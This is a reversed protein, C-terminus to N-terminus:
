ILHGSNWVASPGHTVFQSVDLEEHGNGIGAIDRASRRVAKECRRRRAQADLLKLRRETGAQKVPFCATNGQGAGTLHHKIM